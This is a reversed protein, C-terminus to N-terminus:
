SPPGARLVLAFAHGALDRAFREHREGKGAGPAVGPLEVRIVEGPQVRVVKEGTESEGGDGTGGDSSVYSLMRETRLALELSGDKRIRGRVHGTVGVQLQQAGDGATHAQLMEHAFQFGTKEGHRSTAAWRRSTKEGSPADHVLWLDYAIQKGALAPDEKLEATLELAFNRMCAPEGAPSPAVFDLLLREGERLSVQPITEGASRVPSGAPRSEFRGWTAGLVLKDITAELLTVDATWAYRYRALVAAVPETALGAGCGGPGGLAGFAFPVVRDPQVMSEGVGLDIPGM